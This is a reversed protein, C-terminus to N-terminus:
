LPLYVVTNTSLIMIFILCTVIPGLYVRGTLQFFIRNFYPLIFMMPVIGFLLNVSLWNTTWFVTGTWAFTVYQIIIIMMLGLSNAFGAILRSKWESQNKFRMAGNVRLSNSFFFIFFLPFYMVLVLLMEPQFIRVGMFWFRYDVHFLFYVFYLILYYCIFISLGLMITKFLEVKNIQLGWSNTNVGHHRGFFYYSIFFIVLGISGNFAAWLMVSNNMRQPFFWTLERNASEHFLIKAVDVMPIFSICAILASLFFVSWFIMKSKSTQEPLSAPIDKVIDKYFSLSLFLKAIPILMLLSVIMNILTFLEKYQWIQNNSNISIPAGFVKDFYDLQNKTAEKNYPQFPHLLEENFIVRLTNNSREGYYKGLEVETVKKDKPLVSNVTRLSEPAIKMNGADWGQLDNRFAGEDYLAYSVGMNSKSDRLINERLTLVYGSIYVSDLKSKKGSKIAEKGFYDAGRIAANGGMSHGTSGIKNIDVFSFNEAYAYDVLAFMGYGQTTAALRSLSSSSMGQAYPDILAVVYGRRSLEIAINSLAEKSRQFGPVVVIFPQKDNETAISPKYLDYVLNQGDPTKLNMLKVDVKGFSTQILSAFFSSLIIVVLCYLFLKNKNLLTIM